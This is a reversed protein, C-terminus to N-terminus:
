GPRTRLTRRAIGAARSPPKATAFTPAHCAHRADDFKEPPRQPGRDAAGPADPRFPCRGVLRELERAALELWDFPALEGAPSGVIVEGCERGILGAALRQAFRLEAVFAPRDI